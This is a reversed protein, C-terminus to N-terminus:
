GVAHQLVLRLGDLGFPKQLFGAPAALFTEEGGMNPMTLDLLVLAFRSPDARVLAM